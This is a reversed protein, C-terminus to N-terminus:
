EQTKHSTEEALDEKGDYQKRAVLSISVLAILSGLSITRLITIIIDMRSTEKDNKKIIDDLKKTPTGIFFLGIVNNNQDKVPQYASYYSEGLIEADGLYLDGNMLTEYAVHDKGLFTGIARKEEDVMISTSIRKFDDNEKVFITSHDGLDEFIRDVVGTRGEISEGSRDLLTGQGPSLTGYSNEVYRMKLNINEEIQEKLLQNKIDNLYKTSNSFGLLSVIMSALLAFMGAYGILKIKNIKM